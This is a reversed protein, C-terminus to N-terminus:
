GYRQYAIVHSSSWFKFFFGQKACTRYRNVLNHLVKSSANRKSTPIHTFLICLDPVSVILVWM